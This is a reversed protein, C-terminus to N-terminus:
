KNFEFFNMQHFGTPLPITCMYIFAFVLLFFAILMVAVKNPMNKFVNVIGLLFLVLSYIVSVLNYSDGKTNDRQGEELLEHAAALKKQAEGFYKDNIGPMEFPNSKNNEKMWKIGEGLTQSVSQNVFNEIQTELHKIKVEDGEAKALELDSNYDCLTNWVMYDAIYMQLSSNYASTGESSTNNSKTFNIAQIGGHLSGIWSAWANLVATIGLFVVVIIEVRKETLLPKKGQNTDLKKVETSMRM